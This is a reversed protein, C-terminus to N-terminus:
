QSKDSVISLRRVESGGDGTTDDKGVEEAAWIKGQQVSDRSKANM